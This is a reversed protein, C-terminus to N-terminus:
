AQGLVDDLTDFGTDEEIGLGTIFLDFTEEVFAQAIPTSAVIESAIAYALPLGLDNYELFDTFEEDGRYNL